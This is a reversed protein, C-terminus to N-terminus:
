KFAAMAKKAVPKLVELDKNTGQAGTAYILQLLKGQDIIMMMVGIKNLRAFARDGIGPVLIVNGSKLANDHAKSFAMDAAMGTGPYKAASLGNPKGTITWTCTTSNHKSVPTSGLLKTLDEPKLLACPGQNAAQPTAQEAHVAMAALMLMSGFCISVTQLKM